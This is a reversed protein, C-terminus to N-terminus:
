APMIHELPPQRSGARQVYQARCASRSVAFGQGAATRIAAAAYAPLRHRCACSGALWGGNVATDLLRINKYLSIGTSRERSFGQAARVFCSSRRSSMWVRPHKSKSISPHSVRTCAPPDLNRQAISRGLWHPQMSIRPASGRM